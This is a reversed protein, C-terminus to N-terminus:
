EAVIPRVRKGDATASWLKQGQALDIVQCETRSFDTDDPAIGRVRRAPLAVAAAGRAIEPDVGFTRSVVPAHGLQRAIDRARHPETAAYIVQGVGLAHTIQIRAQGVARVHTPMGIVVIEVSAVRLAVAPANGILAARIQPHEVRGRITAYPHINLEGRMARLGRAPEHRGGLVETRDVHMWGTVAHREIGAALEEAKRQPLARHSLMTVVPGTAQSVPLPEGIAGGENGNAVARALFPHLDKLLPLRAGHRPVDSVDHGHARRGLAMADRKGIVAVLYHDAIEVRPFQRHDVAAVCATAVIEGPGGVTGPEGVREPNRQSMTRDLQMINCVLATGEYRLRLKAVVTGREIGVSSEQVKQRDPG